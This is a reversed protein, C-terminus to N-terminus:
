MGKWVIGRSSSRLLREMHAKKEIYFIHSSVIVSVGILVFMMVTERFVSNNGIIENYGRDSIM